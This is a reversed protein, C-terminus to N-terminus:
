NLPAKGQAPIKEYADLLANYASRIGRSLAPITQPVEFLERPYTGGTFQVALRFFDDKNM